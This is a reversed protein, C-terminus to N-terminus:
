HGKELLTIAGQFNSMTRALLTLAVVKPDKTGADSEIMHSNDFIAKGKEYLRDALSLWRDPLTM